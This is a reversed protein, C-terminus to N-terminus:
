AVRDASPGGSIVVEEATPHHETRAGTWAAKKKFHVRALPLEPTGEGEATAISSSATKSACRLQISPACSRLLAGAPRSARLSIM